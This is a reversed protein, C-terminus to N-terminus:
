IGLDNYIYEALKKHAELDYHGQDVVRSKQQRHFTNYSGFSRNESGPFKLIKDKDIEQWIKEQFPNDSIIDDMHFIHRYDSSYKKCLLDVYLMSNFIKYNNFKEASRFFKKIFINNLPHYTKDMWQGLRVWWSTEELWAIGVQLYNDSDRSIYKGTDPYFFESRDVGTWGVLVLSNPHDILAEPLQRFFRDNSGGTMAYNICPIGLKDALHQPYALRKGEHDVETLSVVGNNVDTWNHSFLKFGATHSGGFALVQQFKKM